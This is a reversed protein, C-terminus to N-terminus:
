FSLFRELKNPDLDRIFVDMPYANGLAQHPRRTNYWEVYRDMTATLEELTDTPGFYGMERVASAHSREIKGQTQPHRVRGTIHVIGNEKCYMDLRSRGKGGSISYFETGHDSLIQDPKMHWFRFTSDLLELVDDASQRSKVMWGIIARSHDDLIFLSHFKKNWTKYDIQVMEMSHGREFRGYTKNRARSKPDAMLGEKRMLRNITTCSASIGGMTRIKSAGLFPLRSRLEVVEKKISRQVKAETDRPRNSVSKMMDSITVDRHKKLYKRVARFLKVWKSVFGKSVGYMRATDSVGKKHDVVAVAVKMRLETLPCDAKGIRKKDWVSGLEGRVRGNVINSAEYESIFPSTKM